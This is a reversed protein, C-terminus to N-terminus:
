AGGLGSMERDGKNADETRAVEGGWYLIIKKFFSLLLVFFDQRPLQLTDCYVTVCM